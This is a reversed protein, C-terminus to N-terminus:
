SVTGPQIDDYHLAQALAGVLVDRLTDPGPLPDLLDALRTVAMGPYGCPNIGSFPRLDCSVNLALGHYCGRQRIRLGLAALKAEGQPLHVYVGPADPRGHARIGWGGVATVVAQQLREVLSRAGLGLRRTDLLTYFMWQGPGHWTVQGGRDIAIVPMEGTALLHQRGAALGLTYVPEHQLCWLEDLTDPQRAATFAQMAQWVPLYPQVASFQRVILAPM